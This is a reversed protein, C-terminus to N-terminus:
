GMLHVLSLGYFGPRCHSDVMGLPLWTMGVSVDKIWLVLCCRVGDCGDEACGGCVGSKGEELEIHIITSIKM